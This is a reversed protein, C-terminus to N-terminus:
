TTASLRFVADGVKSNCTKIPASLSLVPLPSCRKVMTAHWSFGENGTWPDDGDRKPREM